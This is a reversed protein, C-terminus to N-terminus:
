SLVPPPENGQYAIYLKKRIVPINQFDRFLKELHLLNLTTRSNDLFQIEKFSLIRFGADNSIWTKLSASTQIGTVANANCTAPKFLASLEKSPPNTRNSESFTSLVFFLTVILLIMSLFFIRKDENEVKM